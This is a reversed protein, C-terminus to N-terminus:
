GVRLYVSGIHVYDTRADSSLAVVVAGAGYMNTLSLFKIGRELGTQASIIYLITVFGILFLQTSLTNPTGFLHSVGGSIQIAGFGLSTAVGFVTAFVAIVDIAHGIGGDVRNGLLSRCSHSILGPDRKRFQFYALCLAVMTYIAWPHLGWHFFAYRLALRAAEPTNASGAPPDAYHSSPEAVGWFVLGIGMGACFLMAFWTILPFEPKAGDPGLPIHGYRSFALYLAGLLFALASLLYFWGFSELLFSQITSTVRGLHQPAAAGWLVFGCALPFSVRFVATSGQFLSTIANM